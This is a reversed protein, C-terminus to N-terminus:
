SKFLLVALNGNAYGYFLAREQYSIDFAMSEGIMCHWTPGFKKDMSEKVIQAAKEVDCYINGDEDTKM